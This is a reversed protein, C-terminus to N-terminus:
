GFLKEAAEKDGEAAKVATEATAQRAFDSSHHLLVQALSGSVVNESTVNAKDFARLLEKKTIGQGGLRAVDGGHDEAIAATALYRDLVQLQSQSTPIGSRANASRSDALRRQDRAFRASNGSHGGVIRGSGHARFVSDTQSHWGHAGMSNRGYNRAHMNTTPM